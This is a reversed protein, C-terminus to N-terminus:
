LQYRWKKFVLEFNALLPDQDQRKKEFLSLYEDLVINFQEQVNLALDQHLYTHRDINRKIKKVRYYKNTLWKKNAVKNLCQCTKLYQIEKKLDRIIASYRNLKRQTGKSFSKHENRLEGALLKEKISKLAPSQLENAGLGSIFYEEKLTNQNEIVQRYQGWHDKLYDPDNKVMFLLSKQLAIKHPSKNQLVLNMAELKETESLLNENAVYLAQWHEYDNQFNHRTRLLKIALKQENSTMYTLTTAQDKSSLKMNGFERTFQKQNQKALLLPLKLELSVPVRYIFNNMKKGLRMSSCNKTLTQISNVLQQKDKNVFISDFLTSCYKRSGLQYQIRALLFLDKEEVSIKNLIRTQVLNKNGKKQDACKRMPTNLYQLRKEDLEIAKLPKFWATIDCAKPLYFAKEALTQQIFNPLIQLKEFNRILKKSPSWSSRSLGARIGQYFEKKDQLGKALKFNAALKDQMNEGLIKGYDKIMVPLLTSNAYSEISKQWLALAKYPKEKNIYIWGLKYLLYANEINQSDLKLNEEFTKKAEDLKGKQFYWDALLRLLRFKEEKDTLAKLANKLVYIPDAKKLEQTFHSLVLALRYRKEKSEINLFQRELEKVDIEKGLAGDSMLKITQDTEEAFSIQMSIIIALLLIIKQM